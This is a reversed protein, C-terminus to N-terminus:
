PLASDEDPFYRKSFEGLEMYAGTDDDTNGDSFYDQKFRILPTRWASLLGVRSIGRIKEKKQCLTIQTKKYNVVQREEPMAWFGDFMVGGRPGIYFCVLDASDPLDPWDEFASLQEWEQKSVSDRALKLAHDADADMWSSYACIYIRRDVFETRRHKLAEILTQNNPGDPPLDSHRRRSWAEEAAVLDPETIVQQPLTGFWATADAYIAADDSIMNAEHWGSLEAGQLSLGNASANSSGLVLWKDFLYVKGHLKDCQTVRIRAEMLARIGKPNTGGSKLNCIVTAAEGKELLGLEKAADEGWFAVAIRVNESETVHKKIEPTVAKGDLFKLM